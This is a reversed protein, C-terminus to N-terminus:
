SQYRRIRAIARVATEWLSLCVLTSGVLGIDLVMDLFGHHASPAEWGVSEVLNASASTIGSWFVSLGYGFFPRQAIKESVYYWIDTRGTLSPDKGLARLTLSFIAEYGVSILATTMIVFILSIILQRPKLKLLRSVGITTLVLVSNLLASGSNSQIILFFALGLGVLYRRKQKINNVANLMILLVSSAFVMMGGLQNKHLFIGRWSGEHIGGMIGYKPLLVVFVLSLFVIILSFSGLIELQQKLSFRSAIYLGFLTNCILVIANDLTIDPSTSWTFSIGVFLMIWPLLYNSRLAYFTKKYRCLLLVVTLCQNLLYCLAVPTYDVSLAETGDGESVGGTLLVLLIADSYILLSFCVFAYEFKKIIKQVQPSLTILPASRTLYIEDTGSM